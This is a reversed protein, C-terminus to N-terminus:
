SLSLKAPEGSFFFIGEVRRGDKSASGKTGRRTDSDETDDYRAAKLKAGDCPKGFQADSMTGPADCTSAVSNLSGYPVKTLATGTRILM